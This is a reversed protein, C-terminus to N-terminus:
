LGEHRVEKRENKQQKRERKEYYWADEDGEAKPMYALLAREMLFTALFCFVGPVIVVCPMPLIFFLMWVVVATGAIMAVTIPLFRIAMVFSLKWIGSLKMEFRSLVPFVYVIVCAGIVLLGLYVAMLHRNGAAQATTKGLYLIAAGLLIEITLLCGRGLTRKMSGFFEELPNGREHRISKVVAYYFSTLAPGITVVPICCLIFAINLLILEGTKQLFQILRGEYSFWEKVNMVRETM